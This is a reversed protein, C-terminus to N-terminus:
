WNSWNVKEKRGREEKASKDIHTNTSIFDRYCWVDGYNAENGLRLILSDWLVFSLRKTLEYLLRM